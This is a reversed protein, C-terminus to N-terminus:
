GIISDWMILEDASMSTYVNNHTEVYQRGLVMRGKGQGTVRKVAEVNLPRPFGNEYFTVTRGDFVLTVHFWDTPAQIVWSSYM